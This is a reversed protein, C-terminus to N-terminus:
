PRPVGIPNPWRIADRRSLERAIPQLLELLRAADRAGLHAVPATALTDTTAEVHDRASRGAATLAGAPDLWGRARLRDIAAAWDDDSWGRYPQISELGAGSAAVQTVHAACPDVGAAVLAAVHGDGRHERILTAAHWLVLHPADPWGLECNAAFLVRGAGDVGTIARRALAAAEALEPGGIADPILRHLARDAGLLRAAIAREPTVTEWIAPLARAVFAPEFGFFSGVIPGPGVAGLPAARGAFYGRWFGRLGIGTFADACEPAFYTIAHYPEILHWLRRPQLLHATVTPERRLGTGRPALM